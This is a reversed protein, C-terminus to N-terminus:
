FPVGLRALRENIRANRATQKEKKKAEKAAKKAAREAKRKDIEGSAKEKRWKKIRKMKGPSYSRVAM